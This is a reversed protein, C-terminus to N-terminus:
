RGGRRSFFVEAADATPIEAGAAADAAPIEAEATGDAAPIERRPSGLEGQLQNWTRIMRGVVDGVMAVALPLDRAVPAVAQLLLGLGMEPLIPFILGFVLGLGVAVPDTPHPFAILAAATLIDAALALGLMTMRGAPVRRLSARDWLIGQLGTITLAVGLWGALGAAPEYIRQLAAVTTYLNAGELVLLMGLAPGMGLAAWTGLAPRRRGTRRGAAALAVREPIRSLGRLWGVLVAWLVALREAGAEAVGEDLLLSLGEEPGVAVLVGGAVRALAVLVGHDLIRGLAALPALDELHIGSLGATTLAIDVAQLVRLMGLTTWAAGAARAEGGEPDAGPDLLPRILHPHGRAMVLLFEALQLSVALGVQVPFDLDLAHGSFSLISAINTYALLGVGVLLLVPFM